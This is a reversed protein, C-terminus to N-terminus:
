IGAFGTSIPYAGRRDLVAFAQRLGGPTAALGGVQALRSRVRQAVVGVAGFAQEAFCFAAPGELRPANGAEPSL